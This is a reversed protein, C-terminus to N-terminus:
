STSEVCIQVSGVAHRNLLREIQVCRPRFLAQRLRAACRRCLRPDVVEAQPQYAGFSATRSSPVGTASLRWHSLLRSTSSYGATRLRAVETRCTGGDASCFEAFAVPPPM